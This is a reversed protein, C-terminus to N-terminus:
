GFGRKFAMKKMNESRRVGIEEVIKLLEKPYVDQFETGETAIWEFINDVYHQLDRMLYYVYDGYSKFYRLVINLFNIDNSIRLIGNRLRAILENNGPDLYDGTEIGDLKVQLGAIKAELSILSRICKAVEKEREIPDHKKTMLVVTDVIEKLSLKAGKNRNSADDRLRTIESLIKDIKFKKKVGGITLSVTIDKEVNNLYLNDEDRVEKSRGSHIQNGIVQEVSVIKLFIDSNFKNSSSILSDIFQSYPGFKAIDIIFPDNEQYVRNMIGKSRVFPELEMALILEYSIDNKDAVKIVFDEHETFITQMTTQTKNLTAIISKWADINNKERSDVKRKAEEFDKESVEKNSDDKFLGMVWAISKKIIKRIFDVIKKFGAKIASWISEVSIILRTSTADKTFHNIPIQKIEDCFEGAEMALVQNMGRAVRIDDLVYQLSKINSELEVVFELNEKLEPIEGPEVPAKFFDSDQLVSEDELDEDYEYEAGFM